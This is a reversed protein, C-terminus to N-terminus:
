KTRAMRLALEMEKDQGSLLEAITYSVPYDPVVGHAAAPNGNVAMYYTMIPVGLMVKSNPPVVRLSLGSTNGYYGGASEEGIFTARKRFHVHSLFESTTSFSGGNILIYVKGRFTPKSPQQIGWNPHKVARYKGNPQPELGEAPVTKRGSIYDSFSFKLANIVLDDYYRFPEAVLYSLLLKGLADAGGGNDRLDIILTATKKSDLESFTDSIFQGLPRPKPGGVRGGFGNIKLVAVAGDDVYRLSAAEKPRQDQPFRARWADSVRDRMQGQLHARVEQHRADRLVVDFPPRIGTLDSLQRSFTLGSVRYLRSSEVDGDAPTAAILTKLIDQAAVGNISRIEMGALRGDESSLDRFIYVKGDLIRVRFPLIPGEVTASPM